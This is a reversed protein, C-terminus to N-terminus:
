ERELWLVCASRSGDLELLLQLHKLPAAAEIDVLAAAFRALVIPLGM